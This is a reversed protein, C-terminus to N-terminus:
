KRIDKFNQKLKLKKSKKLFSKNSVLFLVSVIIFLLFSLTTSYYVFQITFIVCFVVLLFFLKQYNVQIKFYSLRLCLTILFGLLSGIAVAYLELSKIFIISFVINVLAGIITTAFIGKTNKQKLYVAGLFACFASLGTSMLLISLYNGADHYSNPTTFQVITKSLTSLSIILSLELIIFRNFAKSLNFNTSNKDTSIVYDQWTLIFVSNVIAVIGAYRAAIAYVGNYQENLFILIIYRNGLDILWWSLANPLLPWSYVILRKAEVRNISYLSVGFSIKSFLLALIITIIQTIILVILLGRVGQQLVVIFLVTLSLILLTNIAGMIGYWKNNKLGRFLQQTFVYLCSTLQLIIFEYFYAYDIWLNLVSAIIAFIAYCLLLVGLATSVIKKHTKEEEVELLFRYVGDSIQITILPTLFTISVLILDYQGLQSQELYFSLFPVIVFLVAKSGLIGFSYFVSSKIFSNIKLM